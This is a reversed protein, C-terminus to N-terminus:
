LIGYIKLTNFASVILALTSIIYPYIVKLKEFTYADLYARGEPTITYSYTGIARDNFSLITTEVYNNEELLSIEKLMESNFHETIEKDKVNQNDKIFVLLKRTNKDLM